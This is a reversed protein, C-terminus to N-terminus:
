HASGFFDQSATPDPKITKKGKKWNAPCVEGYEEVFQLADLLRIVEDISRGVSKDNVIIQRLIGKKDIIFVGRFTDGEEEDLVAYAKSITKTRDALLPINMKGLGGKKRDINTWALHCYESDTSCAIVQCNKSKFEDSRDSFAIIETPCVFTFDAPYFFLVIYQGEYDKLSIEKFAGDILAIGKFDPAPKTIALVMTEKKRSVTPKHPTM